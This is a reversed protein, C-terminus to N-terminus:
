EEEMEGLRQLAEELYSFNVMEQLPLPESLETYGRDFHYQQQEAISEMNITADPHFYFAVGNRVAPEPVQTWELLANVIEDNERWADGQLDRVAKLYAMLFRVGVERNEPELLREGFYVVGIQPNETIEGGDLLVTADGERLPIGALPHALIGADISDNAFAAPMEPFPLPILDVDDVALGHPELAEAVLYEVSGATVNVAVSRGELDGADEVEGSEVLETRVLLPLAGYGPRLSSSGAVIRIDFGRDVAHFVPPGVNGGGVDIQGQGLPAIMLNGSRFSEFEVNLGMEEFYGREAAVFHPAFGLIPIYGIRLTFDDPLPQMESEAEDESEEVVEEDSAPLATAVEEVAEASEDVITEAVPDQAGCAVLLGVLILVVSGRLCKRLFM